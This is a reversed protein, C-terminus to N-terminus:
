ERPRLATWEDMEAKTMRCRENLRADRFGQERVDHLYQARSLLTGQCIRETAPTAGERRMKDILEEIIALPLRHRESPYIFGFLALHSLLVRWDPGFREVLHPWDIQEACNLLLHAVDAGDYREREMIYAKMWIIEEPACIKARVGLVEQTPARALWSEDVECLGNGGRYIIDILDEGQFVKALWHPHTKETRYGHRQFVNLTLDVDTAKVFVDFDKTNRAIGTYLALAFAGGVMFPVRERELLQMSERYFRTAESLEIANTATWNM